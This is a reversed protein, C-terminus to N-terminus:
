RAYGVARYVLRGALERVVDASEALARSRPALRALQLPHRAAHFDVPLVDPEIGVARFCGVARPVHAASTVLLLRAWGRERAIRASEVANERTNRSNPEVVLRARDVGWNALMRAALEAERPADSQSSLSGSSLLAARVRGIRLLEFAAVYRDAAANLELRGATATGEPDMAGGLVIAADYVVGRRSTDHVGSEALSALAESVAETSFAWLVAPALIGAAVAARPRRRLAIALAGLVIAWVVPELFLDFTKSLTVFV